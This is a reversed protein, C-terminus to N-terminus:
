RCYSLRVVMRTAQAVRRILFRIMGDRHALHILDPALTRDSVLVHEDLEAGANTYRVIAIQKSGSDQSLSGVVLANDHEDITVNTAIGSHTSDNSYIRSWSQRLGGSRGAVGSGLLVITDIALSNSRVIMHGHSLGTSRPSYGAVLFMSRGASLTDLPYPHFDSSSTSPLAFSATASGINRVIIKKLQTEGILTTGFDITDNSYTLVPLSASATLIFQQSAPSSNTALTFRVTDGAGNHTRYKVSIRITDDAAISFKAPSITANPHDASYGTIVLNGSGVNRILVQQSDVVDPPIVGLSIHRAINLVRGPAPGSDDLRM